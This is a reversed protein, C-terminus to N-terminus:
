ARTVGILSEPIVARVDKGLALCGRTVWLWAGEYREGTWQRKGSPMVMCAAGTRAVAMGDTVSASRATSDSSMLPPWRVARRM